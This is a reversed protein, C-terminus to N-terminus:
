DFEGHLFWRSTQFVRFVWWRRGQDDEVDFYDRTKNHGDWWAGAIREPGVAYVIIRTRGDLTFSIPAGDRDHSPRVMVAIERPTQLLHLPRVQSPINDTTAHSKPSSLRAAVQGHKVEERAPQGHWTKFAREPVYCEVAGVRVLAQEGLRIRLREILRDLEQRGVHEDQELLRIQEESLREFVSVALRLGTFGNPTFEDVRADRLRFKPTREGRPKPATGLTEMTCRILNFLNGANRSPSSLDITREISQAHPRVFTVSLRRAGAGLRVLQAVIREILGGFAQWLAELSDVVGDFDISAEVPEHWVLPALPEAVRGLAQDIRLLLQDGFRVPLMDRPLQLIQGINELGLHHL